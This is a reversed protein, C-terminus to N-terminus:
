PPKRQCSTGSKREGNGTGREGSGAGREGSGAGREGNGTKTVDAPTELSFVERLLLSFWCCVRGCTADVGPNSGPGCLHFALARM